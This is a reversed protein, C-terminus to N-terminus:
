SPFVLHRHPQRLALGNLSPEARESSTSMCHPDHRRSLVFSLEVHMPHLAMHAKPVALQLARCFLTNQRAARKLTQSIIGLITRESRHPSIRENQKRAPDRCPQASPYRVAGSNKQSATSNRFIGSWVVSSTGDHTRSFCSSLRLLM